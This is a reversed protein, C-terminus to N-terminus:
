EHVGCLIAFAEMDMAEGTLGNGTVGVTIKGSESLSIDYNYEQLLDHVRETTYVAELYISGLTVKLHAILQAYLCDFTISDARKKAADRAKTATELLVRHLQPTTHIQQEPEQLFDLFETYKRMSYLMPAKKSITFGHLFRYLKAGLGQPYSDHQSYVIGYVQGQDDCLRILGRTGM